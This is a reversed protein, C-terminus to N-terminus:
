CKKLFFSFFFFFISSAVLEESIRDLYRRLRESGVGYFIGAEFFVRHLFTYIASKLIFEAVFTWAFVASLRYKKIITLLDTDIQGRHADRPKTRAQAETIIIGFTLNNIIYNLDVVEKVIEAESFKDIVTSFLLDTDM